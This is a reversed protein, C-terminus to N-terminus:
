APAAAAAELGAIEIKKMQLMANTVREAKVRDPDQLLRLLVTPVIQWSVGFRDKVWGCMQVEGDASLEQWYRDVEDQTECHVMLSMGEAFHFSDGGNFCGFEQGDLEFTGGMPSREVIRSNPFVSVYYDMAELAQNDFMLFTTIKPM